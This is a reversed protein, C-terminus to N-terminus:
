LFRVECEVMRCIRTGSACASSGLQSRKASFSAMGVTGCYLRAARTTSPRQSSNNQKRQIACPRQSVHVKGGAFKGGRLRGGMVWLMAATVAAAQRKWAIGFAAARRSWVHSAGPALENVELARADHVSQRGLAILSKWAIEFVAAIHRRCGKPGVMSVLIAAALATLSRWAIGCVAARRPSVSCLRAVSVSVTVCARTVRM